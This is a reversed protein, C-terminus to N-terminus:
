GMPSVVATRISSSIQYAASICLETIVDVSCHSIDHRTFSANPVVDHSKWSAVDCENNKVSNYMLAVKQMLKWAPEENLPTRIVSTLNFQSLHKTDTISLHGPLLTGQPLNWQLKLHSKVLGLRKLDQLCWCFEKTDSVVLRPCHQSYFSWSKGTTSLTLEEMGPTSVTDVHSRHWLHTVGKM